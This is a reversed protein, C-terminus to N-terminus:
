SRSTHRPDLLTTVLTVVRTRQGRAALHYRRERVILGQPLAAFQKKSMWKPKQKPKAWEVLQNYGGLKRIFFSKPKGKGGHKRGHRFDVQQRQQVRFLGFVDRAHLMALHAHSCFARNGVLLDGGRLLPHLMWVNSAEPM